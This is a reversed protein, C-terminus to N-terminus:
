SEGFSRESTPVIPAESSGPDPRETAPQKLVLNTILSSREGRKRYDQILLDLALQVITNATVRRGYREQIEVKMRNLWLIQDKYFDYSNRETARQKPYEFSRQLTGEETRQPMPEFRPLKQREHSREKTVAVRPRKEAGAEEQGRVRTPSSPVFLKQDLGSLKAFPDNRM